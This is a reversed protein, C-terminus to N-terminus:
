MLMAQKVVPLPTSEDTIFYFLYQLLIHLKTKNQQLM